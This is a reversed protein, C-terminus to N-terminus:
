QLEVLCEFERLVGVIGRGRPRPRMSAHFVVNLNLDEIAIGRGRPRPRMSAFNREGRSMIGIGIGRGRPRPRMSALAGLPNAWIIRWNWSRATTAENFCPWGANVASGIVPIGRGRPRPRMSAVLPGILSPSCAPIGRGRPRPRMSASSRVRKGWATRWNWSRATTAENFRQRRARDANRDLLEM